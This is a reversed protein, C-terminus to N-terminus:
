WAGRLEVLEPDDALLRLARSLRSKITGPAVALVGAMQAEGLHCYFRLVVVARHESSLRALARTVADTTDLVGFEDEGAVEPMTAVPREGRWHRRRTSVFSNFLVRYVYADPDGARQVRSWHVFCRILATQVIDEAEARSCGLLVVSRVLRVWRARVFESFDDDRNV